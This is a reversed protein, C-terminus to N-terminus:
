QIISHFVMTTVLLAGTEVDGSNTINVSTADYTVAIGGIWNANSASAVAFQVNCVNPTGQLGHAFTTNGETAISANTRTDVYYRMLAM